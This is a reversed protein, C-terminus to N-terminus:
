EREALHWLLRDLLGIASLNLRMKRMWGRMAEPDDLTLTVTGIEECYDGQWANNAHDDSIQVALDGDRWCLVAGFGTFPGDLEPCSMATTRLRLLAHTLSAARRVYACQHDGGIRELTALPLRPRDYDLAWPPFAAEIAARTVIDNAMAQRAELDDGCEEDLMLNEDDEGRWYLYSAEDLAVGPTFLPYAHAGKREMADLITSGLQPIRQELYDLGTGVGWHCVSAERWCIQISGTHHPVAGSTNCPGAVCPDPHEILQLEFHPTFCRLEGTTASLWRNLASQCIEHISTSDRNFTRPNIAGAQLLYQALVGALRLNSSPAIIGPIDPSMM